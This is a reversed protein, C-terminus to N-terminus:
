SGTGLRGGDRWARHNTILRPCVRATSPCCVPSHPQSTTFVHSHHLPCSCGLPLPPDTLAASPEVCVGDCVCECQSNFVIQRSVSKKKKSKTGSLHSFQGFSIYCSLLYLFRSEFASNLFFTKHFISQDRFKVAAMLHKHYSALMM